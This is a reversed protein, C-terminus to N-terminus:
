LLDDCKIKKLKFKEGIYNKEKLIIENRGM